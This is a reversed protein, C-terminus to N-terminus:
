ECLWERRVWYRWKLLRDWDLVGKRLEEAESPTPSPTRNVARVDM